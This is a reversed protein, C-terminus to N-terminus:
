RGQLGPIIAAFVAPKARHREAAATRVALATRLLIVSHRLSKARQCAPSEVERQASRHDGAEANVGCLSGRHGPVAWGRHGLYVKARWPRVPGLRGEILGFLHGLDFGPKGIHLPLVSVADAKGAAVQHARDILHLGPKGLDTIHVTHQDHRDSLGGGRQPRQNGGEVHGAQEERPGVGRM